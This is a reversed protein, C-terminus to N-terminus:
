HIQENSVLSPDGRRGEELGQKRCARIAICIAGLLIFGGLIVALLMLNKNRRKRHSASDGSMYDEWEKSVDITEGGYFGVQQNEYDFTLRFKNFFPLGFTFIDDNEKHFRILMEWKDEGFRRFLDEGRIVYGKGGVVFAISSQSIHEDDDCIYFVDNKVKIELCSDEFIKEMFKERFEKLHRYPINIYDYASDFMVRSDFSLATELSREETDVGCFIHTLECIWGSRFKDDLDDVFTLNCTSYEETKYDDPFDGIVLEHNDPDITFIEHVIQGSQKLMKIWNYADGHEHRFGLGLKGQSFDSFGYEFENVQVFGMKDLKFNGVEMSDFTAKGKVNGGEDDLEFTKNTAKGTSSADVDYKPVELSTNKSPVWSESTKTDVQVDFEQNNSGLIMPVTHFNNKENFELKITKTFCASVLLAVLSIRGLLKM